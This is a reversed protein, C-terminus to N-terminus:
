RAEKRAEMGWKSQPAAAAARVMYESSLRADGRSAYIVGLRYSIEALTDADVSGPSKKALAELHLFDKLAIEKRKFFDPLRLSNNGRVMRVVVKDPSLSVAKDMLNIGRNVGSVKVVVNWSDRAEMTMASGLYALTEPDGPAAKSATKLTEVARGSAGKVELSALNHWAIGLTKLSAIDQGGKTEIEAITLKLAERDMLNYIKAVDAFASTNLPMGMILLIATILKLFRM